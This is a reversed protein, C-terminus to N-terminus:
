LSLLDKFRAAQRRSVEIQSGDKLTVRLGGNFWTEIHEVWKLNVIHKRNARFFVREDLKEELANLSKLILPKSNKFWVRIYNGESEFLRVEELTVFWCRDGDKLFIQDSLGLLNEGSKEKRAQLSEMRKEAKRIAEALRDAEIPKLVYDLANVDFAKIAYEDFATVFIVNPVSDLEELLDFGSKGPMQIDLFILDPQHQGILENAEDANEAEAVVEIAPFEELMRKLEKRALREDDVIITKM